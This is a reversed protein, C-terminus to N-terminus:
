KLLLVSKNSHRLICDTVTIRKMSICTVNFENASELIVECPCGVRSVVEAKEGFEDRIEELRKKIILKEKFAVYSICGELSEM